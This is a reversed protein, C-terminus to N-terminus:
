FKARVATTGNTDVLHVSRVVLLNVPLKRVLVKGKSNSKVTGAEQGNVRVTFTSNPAVGSAIMTFSDTRKGRKVTSRAQAKNNNSTSTVSSSSAPRAHVKATFKITSTPAPDVLDGTLL